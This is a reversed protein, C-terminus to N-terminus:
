NKGLLYGYLIKENSQEYEVLINRINEETPNGVVDEFVEYIEHFDDWVKIQIIEKKVNKITVKKEIIIAKMCESNNLFDYIKMKEIVTCGILIKIEIDKKM